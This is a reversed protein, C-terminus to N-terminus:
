KPGLVTRRFRGNEIAEHINAKQTGSRLHEPNCCAKDCDHVHMIVEGKPIDERWLRYAVRHVMQTRGEYGMTGYGQHQKRGTWIWCDTAHPGLQRETREHEIWHRLEAPTMNPKRKPRPKIHHGCNPCTVPRVRPM